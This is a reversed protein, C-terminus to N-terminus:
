LFGIAYSIKQEDTRYQTEQLQFVLRLQGLFIWLLTRDGNYEAPPNVRPEQGSVKAQPSLLRTTAALTQRLPDMMGQIAQLAASADTGVVAPRSSSVLTKAINPSTSLSQKGLADVPSTVKNNM